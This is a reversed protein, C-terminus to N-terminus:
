LGHLASIHGPAHLTKWGTRSTSLPSCTAAMAAALAALAAAGQWPVAAPKTGGRKRHVGGLWHSSVQVISPFLSFLARSGIYLAQMGVYGGNQGGAQGGQVCRCIHASPPCSEAWATCIRLSQPYVSTECICPPYSAYVCTPSLVRLPHCSTPCSLLM